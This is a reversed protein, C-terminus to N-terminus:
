PRGGGFVRLTHTIPLNLNNRFKLTTVGVEGPELFGKGIPLSIRATPSGVPAVERTENRNEPMEVQEPLGSIVLTIPEPIPQQADNTFSVEQVFLGSEPDRRFGSVNMTVQDTYDIASVRGAAEDVVSIEASARVGLYDVEVFAIGPSVPTVIGDADVTAIGPDSSTYTTGFRGLAVNRDRRDAYIGTTGLEVTEAPAGDVPADVRFTGGTAYFRLEVPVEEPNPLAMLEYRVFAAKEAGTVADQAKARIVMRAPGTLRWPVAMDFEVPAVATKKVAREGSALESVAEGVYSSSVWVEMEGVDEPTDVVLRFTTGSQVESGNAPTIDLVLPDPEVSWAAPTGLALWVLGPVVIRTKLFVGLKASM